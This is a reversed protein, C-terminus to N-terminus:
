QTVSKACRFGIFPRGGAQPRKAGHARKVALLDNENQSMFSGGRFVHEEAKEPGQPNDLPLVRYYRADYYDSVWEAANGPVHLLDFPSTKRLTAQFDAPAAQPPLPKDAPWTVDPLRTPEPKPPEVGKMKDVLSQKPAQKPHLIDIQAALRSRGGSFNVFMQASNDADWPFRRGDSSRAAYEWEAETPLRKGKWKAYAYADFWDVGVVPQDDGGLERFKWGDPTHDKLPPALPHEMSSDGTSKVHEVFARYEKNNVERKDMLFPNIKVIRMPFNDDGPRAGEDGFLFYGGPLSAMENDAPISAVAKGDAAKVSTEVIQREMRTIYSFDMSEFVDKLSGKESEMVRNIWFNLFATVEAAAYDLKQGAILRPIRESVIKPLKRVTERRKIELDDYQKKAKPNAKYNLQDIGHYKSRGKEMQESILDFNKIAASVPGYWVGQIKEKGDEVIVFEKAFEEKKARIQGADPHKGCKQIFEDFLRISEAYYEAPFSKQPDLNRKAFDTALLDAMDKSEKKEVQARLFEMESSINGQSQKLVIKDATESVVVGEVRRGDKLQLVVLNEKPLLKQAEPSLEELKVAFSPVALTAVLIGFAFLRLGTM